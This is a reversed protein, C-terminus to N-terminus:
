KCFREKEITVTTALSPQAIAILSGCVLPRQFKTLSM